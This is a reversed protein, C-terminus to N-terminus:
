TGGLGGGAQAGVMAGAPGGIMFGIGAGALTGVAGLTSAFSQGKEAQKAINRQHELEAATNYGSIELDTLFDSLGAAALNSIRARDQASDRTRTATAAEATAGGLALRKNQAALQRDSIKLGLARQRRGLIEEAVDSMGRTRELDRDVEAQISAETGSSTLADSLQRFDGLGAAFLDQAGAKFISNQQSAM